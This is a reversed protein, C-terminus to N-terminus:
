LVGYKIEGHKLITEKLPLFFVVVVVVVPARGFQRM